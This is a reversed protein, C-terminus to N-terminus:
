EDVSDKHQWLFTRREGEVQEYGNELAAIIQKHDTVMATVACVMITAGITGFFMVAVYMEGTM